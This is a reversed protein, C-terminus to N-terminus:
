CRNLCTSVGLLGLTHSYASSFIDQVPEMTTQHSDPVVQLSWCSSPSLQTCGVVFHIKLSTMSYAIASSGCRLSDSLLSVRKQFTNGTESMKPVITIQCKEKASHWREAQKNVFHGAANISFLVFLRHLPSNKMDSIYNVFNLM